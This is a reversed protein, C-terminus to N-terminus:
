GFVRALAEVVICLGGLGGLLGGVEMARRWGAERKERRQSDLEIGIETRLRKDEKERCLTNVERELQEIRTQPAPDVAM